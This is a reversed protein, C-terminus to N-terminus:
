NDVSTAKLICRVPIFYGSSTTWNYFNANTHYLRYMYQGGNENRVQMWAESYGSNTNPNYANHGGGMLGFGLSNFCPELRDPNQRGNWEKAYIYDHYGDRNDRAESWFNGAKLRYAGYSDDGGNNAYDILTNMDAITPLTWGDPCVQSATGWDTRYEIGYTKGQSDVPSYRVDLGEKFYRMNEAMWCQKGIRVTTYLENNRSDNVVVRGCNTITVATPAVGSTPRAQVIFPVVVEKKCGMRKTTVECVLKGTGANPFSDRIVSMYSSYNTTYFPALDKRVGGVEGYWKFTAQPRSEVLVGNIQNSANLVEKGDLSFPANTEVLLRVSGSESYQTPTYFRRKYIYTRPDYSYHELDAATLHLDKQNKGEMIEWLGSGEMMRYWVYRIEGSPMVGEAEPDSGTITYGTGTCVTDVAEQGEHVERNNESRIWTDPYYDWEYATVSHGLRFTVTSDKRSIDGTYGNEEGRDALRARESASSAFSGGRLILSRGFSGDTVDPNGWYSRLATPMEGNELGGRGHSILEQYLVIKGPESRYYIEALNGSLEMVGYFSAGSSQPQGATGNNFSGVRAPGSANGGINVNAGVLKESPKGKDSFSDGSPFQATANGWAYGRVPFAPVKGTLSDVTQHGMKEYELESLPRLGCWAAYALMDRPSLFNCAINEGDDAENYGKSNSGGPTLNCAFAYRNDQEAGVVIGNRCVPSKHNGAGYVYDGMTLKDLDDGITRLKQEDGTLKNLFDVYQRQSIEYKMAYFGEFGVAYSGHLTGSVDTREKIGLGRTNNFNVVNGPGDIIYADNTLEALDKETMSITRVYPYTSANPMNLTVRYFRYSGTNPLKVAQTAPYAQNSNLPAQASTFTGLTHWVNPRNNKDTAGEIMWSSVPNGYLEMAAYRVIKKSGFDFIITPSGPERSRWVSYTTGRPDNDQDCVQEPNQDDDMPSFRDADSNYWSGLYVKTSPTILDWEPLIQRDNKQFGNKAFQDGPRFPGKPIYVMEIAMAEISIGDMLDQFTLGNKTYNWKLQMDVESQGSGVADRYIFLGTSKDQAGSVPDGTAYYTFGDTLVHARDRLLVHSWGVDTSKKYKLFVYVADWNHSDRWSNDWAVSMEIVAVSNSTLNELDIYPASTIKVNGAHAFLGWGCLWIFLGIKKM